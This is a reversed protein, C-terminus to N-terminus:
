TPAAAAVGLLRTAADVVRAPALWRMCLVDGYSCRAPGRFDYCPGCPIDVRVARSRPDGPGHVDIDTPGHLALVKAGLARALHAPGSDTSIVLDATRLVGILEDLTTQGVLDIVGPVAASARRGFPGDEDTGVVAIAGDTRARLRDLAELWHSEPWRKAAGHSAGAHAVILPRAAGRIAAPSPLGDTRDVPQWVPDADAVLRTALAAEHAGGNVRRGTLSRDLSLPPAESRYGVRRRAGSLAVLVGAIPGYVSVALDFRRRRIRRLARLAEVWAALNFARPWHTLSAPDFAIVEDVASCRTVIPCWRPPAAFAVHAHPWRRRAAAATSLGNVVDGMLDLRVILVSAPTWDPGVGGGLKRRLAMVALIPTLGVWVLRGLATRVRYRM